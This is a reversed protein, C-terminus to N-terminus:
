LPTEGNNNQLQINARHKLLLRVAKISGSFSALHLPTSHNNDQANVDAKHKLLLLVVDFYSDGFSDSAQNL